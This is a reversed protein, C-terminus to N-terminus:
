KALRWQQNPAGSCRWQQVNAGNESIRNNDVDLCKGSLVSVIQYIDDSAEKLRWLQNKGNNFGFQQINAGDEMSRDAVDLAKGSARNVISYLGEDHEVIQWNQNPGNNFEWQQVNAGDDRSRDQVDLSKGSARNIISGSYFVNRSQAAASDSGRADFRTDALGAGADRPRAAMAGQQPVAGAALMMALTAGALGRNRRTMAGM